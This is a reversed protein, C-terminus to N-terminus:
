LNFTITITFLHAATDADLDKYAVHGEATFVHALLDGAESVSM